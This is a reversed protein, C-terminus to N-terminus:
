TYMKLCGNVSKSARKASTIGTAGNRGSKGFGGNIGVQLCHRGILTEVMDIRWTAALSKNYKHTHTHVRIYTYTNKSYVLFQWEDTPLWFGGTDGETYLARWLEHRNVDPKKGGVVRQTEHPAESKNCM